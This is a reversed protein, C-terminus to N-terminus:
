RPASALRYGECSRYSPTLCVDVLTRRAPARVSADPRRCYVPTRVTWLRDAVVPVLFPCVDVEDSCPVTKM